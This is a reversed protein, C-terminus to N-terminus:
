FFELLLIPWVRWTLALLGHPGEGYNLDVIPAVAVIVGAGPVLVLDFTVILLLAIFRLDSSRYM